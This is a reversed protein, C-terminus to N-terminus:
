FYRWSFDLNSVVTSDSSNSMTYFVQLKSTQFISKKGALISSYFINSNCFHQRNNHLVRWSSQNEACDSPHHEEECCHERYKQLIQETNFHSPHAQGASLTASFHRQRFNQKMVPSLPNHCHNFKCLVLVMCVVVLGEMWHTNPDIYLDRIM